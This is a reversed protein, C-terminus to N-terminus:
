RARRSKRSVDEVDGWKKVLIGLEDVKQCIEDLGEKPMNGLAFEKSARYKIESLLAPAKEALGLM